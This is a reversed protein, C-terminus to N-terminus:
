GVIQCQERCRYCRDPHASSNALRASQSLKRRLHTRHWGSRGLVLPNYRAFTTASEPAMNASGLHTSFMLDEATIGSVAGFVLRPNSTAM